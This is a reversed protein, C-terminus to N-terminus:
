LPITTVNGASANRKEKKNRKRSQQPTLPVLALRHMEQPSQKNGDKEKKKTKSL